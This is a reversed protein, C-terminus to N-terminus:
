IRAGRRMNCIDHTLRLNAVTHEGGRSYPHIHDLHHEGFAVLGGCIQCNPWDREIVAAKIPLPIPERAASPDVGRIWYWESHSRKPLWALPHSSGEAGVPMWQEPKVAGDAEAIIQRAHPLATERRELIRRRKRITQPTAVLSGSLIFSEEELWTEVDRVGLYPARTRKPVAM